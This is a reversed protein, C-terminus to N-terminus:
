TQTGTSKTVKAAVAAFSRGQTPQRGEVIKRADPFSINQSVKVKTIEREHLWKSCSKDFASHGGNCNVCHPPGSCPEEGHAAQGCRACAAPHRCLSQHHGYKQCKYCRLPNPLYQEVPVNYYGAKIHSPITPQAFTLITTNTRRRMGDKMVSIARVETVNQSRLESLLEAEDMQALDYSRIVGKCSNMSRHPSATIPISAFMTLGQLSVAQAERSVEVLLAGSRLKKILKATGICAYMAKDIVFPSVTTVDPNGPKSALIWFRPWNNICTNSSPSIGDEDEQSDSSSGEKDKKRKMLTRLSPAAVNGSAAPVSTKLLSPDMTNTLKRRRGHDGGVVSGLSPVGPM